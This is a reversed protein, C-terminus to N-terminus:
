NVAPEAAAFVSTVASRPTVIVPWWFPLDRWGDSEKGNQRMLMLVPVEEAKTRGLDAQQKTDPANSFRGEERYRAVNRDRAALLWVKGQLQTRKCTRSLHEVAAIHAKRDDDGSDDFELNSYALELLSVATEVPILVPEKEDKSLLGTVLKDLKALNRMGVTKAVTQFGIPLMRRGPRISVVDSFVLKNPSCPVLRNQADKQIFYVGRDHAGSEFADRLAVDFEHIKRMIQYV